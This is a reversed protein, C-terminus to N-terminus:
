VWRPGTNLDSSGSKGSLTSKHWRSLSGIVIYRGSGYHITCVFPLWMAFLSRSHIELPAASPVPDAFPFPFLSPHPQAWSPAMLSLGRGWLKKSVGFISNPWSDTGCHALRVCLGFGVTSVELSSSYFYSLSIGHESHSYEFTVLAKVHSHMSFYFPTVQM